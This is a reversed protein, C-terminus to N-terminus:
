LTGGLKKAEAQAFSTLWATIEVPTLKALYANFATEVSGKAAAIFLGIPGSGKAANIANDALAELGIEGATVTALVESQVAPTEFITVFVDAIKGEFSEPVPTATTTM